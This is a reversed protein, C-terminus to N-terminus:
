SFYLIKSEFTVNSTTRKAMKADGNSAAITATTQTQPKPPAPRSAEAAALLPQVGSRMANELRDIAALLSATEEARTRRAFEALFWRGRATEMVAAEIAEYDDEFAPDTSHTM